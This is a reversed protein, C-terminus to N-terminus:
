HGSRRQNSGFKQFNAKQLKEFLNPRIVNASNLSKKYSRVKMDASAFSGIQSQTRFLNLEHDEVLSITPISQDTQTSVAHASHALSVILASVLFTFIANKM